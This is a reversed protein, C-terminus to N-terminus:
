GAGARLTSPEASEASEARVMLDVEHLGRVGPPGDPREAPSAASFTAPFSFSIDALLAVLRNFFHARRAGSQNRGPRDVKRRPKRQRASREAQLKKRLVDIQEPSLADLLDEPSLGALRGVGVRSKM